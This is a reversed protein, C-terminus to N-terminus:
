MKSCNILTCFFNFVPPNIMNTRAIGFMLGSTCKYSDISFDPEVFKILQYNNDSVYKDYEAFNYHPYDPSLVVLDPDFKGLSDYGDCGQWAHCGNAKYPEPMAVDPSYAVTATKRISKIYDWAVYKTGLGDTFYRYHSSFVSYAVNSFANFSVILLGVSVLVRKLYKNSIKDIINCGYYLINFIAFMYLPYLYLLSIFTRAKYVFLLACLMTLIVSCYYIWHVRRFFLLFLLIILNLCFVVSNSLEVGWISLADILAVSSHGASLESQANLFLSYQLFAYPHIIFFLCTFFVVTSYLM